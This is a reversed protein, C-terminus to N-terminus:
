VVDDSEALRREDVVRTCEAIAAIACSIVHFPDGRDNPPQYDYGWLLNSFRTAFSHQVEEDVRRLRDENIPMNPAMGTPLKAIQNTLSEDEADRFIQGVISGELVAFGPRTLEYIVEETCDKLLEADSLGTDM